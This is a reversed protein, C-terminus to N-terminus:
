NVGLPFGAAAKSGSGFNMETKISAGKQIQAVWQGFLEGQIANDIGKEVADRNKGLDKEKARDASVLKLYFFHNQNPILKKVIPASSTLEFVADLLADGGGM